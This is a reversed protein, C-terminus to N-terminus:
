TKLMTMNTIPYIYFNLKEDTLPVHSSIFVYSYFTELVCKKLILERKLLDLYLKQRQITDTPLIHTTFHRDTHNKNLCTTIDEKCVMALRMVLQHKM